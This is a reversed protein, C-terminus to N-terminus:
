EKINIKLVSDDTKFISQNFLTFIVESKKTGIGCM